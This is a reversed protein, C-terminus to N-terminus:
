CRPRVQAARQRLAAIKADVQAQKRQENEYHASGKSMNFVVQIAYMCIRHYWSDMPAMVYM